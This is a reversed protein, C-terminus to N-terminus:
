RRSFARQGPPGSLHIQRLNPLGLAERGIRWSGSKVEEVLVRMNSRVEEGLFPIAAEALDRIMEATQGWTLEGEILRVTIVRM